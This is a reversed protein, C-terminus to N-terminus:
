IKNVLYYLGLAIVLFILIPKANEVTFNTAKTKPKLQFEKWAIDYQENWYKTNKKYLDPYMEKLDANSMGGVAVHEDMIQIIDQKQAGKKSVFFSTISTGVGVIATIIATWM